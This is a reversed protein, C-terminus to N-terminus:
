TEEGEDWYQTHCHQHGVRRFLFSSGDLANWKSAVEVNAEGDLIQVGCLACAQAWGKSPVAM